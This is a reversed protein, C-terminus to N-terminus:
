CQELVQQQQQQQQDDASTMSCMVWMSELNDVAVLEIDWDTGLQPTLAADMKSLWMRAAPLTCCDAFVSLISDTAVLEIDWHRGLQPALAADIKSACM